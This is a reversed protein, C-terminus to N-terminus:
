TNLTNLINQRIKSKYCAKSYLVYLMLIFCQKNWM